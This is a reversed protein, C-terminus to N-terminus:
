QHCIPLIKELLNERETDCHMEELGSEDGAAAIDEDSALTSALVVEAQTGKGSPHLRARSSCIGPRRPSVIVTKLGCALQIKYVM